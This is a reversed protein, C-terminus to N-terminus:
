AVRRERQYLGVLRTEALVSDDCARLVTDGDAGPELNTAHDLAILRFRYRHSGSGVPPMPPTYGLRGTSGVGRIGLSIGAPLGRVDPPIGYLLWHVFPVESSADPDDCILVLEETGAPPDTWELPPSIGAGDGTFERPIPSGSLFASSSLTFAM